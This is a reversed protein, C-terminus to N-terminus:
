VVMPNAPSDLPPQRHTSRRTHQRTSLFFLKRVHAVIPFQDARLLSSAQLPVQGPDRVRIPEIEPYDATDPLFFDPPSRPLRRHSQAPQWRLSQRLPAGPTGRHSRRRTPQPSDLKPPPASPPVLATRVPLITSKQFRKWIRYPASDSM